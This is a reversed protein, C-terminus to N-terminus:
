NELVDLGYVLKEWGSWSYYTFEPHLQPGPGQSFIFTYKSYIFIHFFIGQTIYIFLCKITCPFKKFYADKMILNWYFKTHIIFLSIFGYLPLNPFDKKNSSVLISIIRQKM